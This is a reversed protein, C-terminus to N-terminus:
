VKIECCTEARFLTSKLNNLDFVNLGFLFDLIIHAFNLLSKPQFGVIHKINVFFLQANQDFGLMTNITSLKAKISNFNIGM